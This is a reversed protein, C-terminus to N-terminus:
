NLCELKTKRLMFKLVLLKIANVGSQLFFGCALTGDAKTYTSTDCRASFHDSM